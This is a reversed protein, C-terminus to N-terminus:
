LQCCDFLLTHKGLSSFEKECFSELNINTKSSVELLVGLMGLPKV